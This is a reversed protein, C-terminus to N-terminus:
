IAAYALAGAACATPLAFARYAWLPIRAAWWQAYAHHWRRPLALILLSSGLIFWGGLLFLDPTKTDASRLVLAAGTAGRLLHEGVHITLNSGMAALGQQARAPSLACLGSVGFLWAAALLVFALSVISIM